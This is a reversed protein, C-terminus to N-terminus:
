KAALNMGNDDDQCLWTSSKSKNGMQKTTKKKAVNM